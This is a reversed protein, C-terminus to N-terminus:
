QIGGKWLSGGQWKNRMTFEKLFTKWQRNSISIPHFSSNITRNNKQSSSLQLILWRWWNIWCLWSLIMTTETKAISSSLKTATSFTMPWSTSTTPRKCSNRFLKTSMLVQLWQINKSWTNWCKKRWTITLQPLLNKASSSGSRWDFFTGSFLRRLSYRQRTSISSGQKM